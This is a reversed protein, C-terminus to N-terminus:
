MQRLSNWVGNSDRVFHRQSDKAVWGIFQVKVNHEVPYIKAYNVLSMPELKHRANRGEFQIPKLHPVFNLVPPEPTSYIIAHYEPTIGRKGLGQRGYTLIPVCNSFGNGTAVVVFRRVSSYVKQGYEGDATWGEVTVDTQESISATDSRPEGKPEAWVVKFIQGPKFYKSRHVKFSPDLSEYKGATGTINPRTFEQPIRAVESSVQLPPPPRRSRARARVSAQTVTADTEYSRGPSSDRGAGSQSSTSLQQEYPAPEEDSYYLEEEDEEPPPPARPNYFSSSPPAPNYNIPASSFNSGTTSTYNQM